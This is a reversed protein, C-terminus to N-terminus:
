ASVAKRLASAPKKYPARYNYVIRAIPHCADSPNCVNGM